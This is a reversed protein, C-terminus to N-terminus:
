ASALRGALWERIDDMGFENVGLTGVQLWMGGHGDVITQASWTGILHDSDDRNRFEVHPAQGDQAPLLTVKLLASEGASLIEIFDVGYGDNTM